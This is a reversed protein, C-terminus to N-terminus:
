SLLAVDRLPQPCALLSRTEDESGDPALRPFNLRTIFESSVLMVCSVSAEPLLASAATRYRPTM